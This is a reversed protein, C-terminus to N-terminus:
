CLVVVHLSIFLFYSYVVNIFYESSEFNVTLREQNKEMALSGTSEQNFYTLMKSKSAPHLQISDSEEM